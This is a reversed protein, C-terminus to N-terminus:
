DTSADSATVNARRIMRYYRARSCAFDFGALGDLFGLKLIYCHLFAAVDRMPMARFVRKLLERWPVPDQSWASRANMGAEWVAYREHRENWANIDGCADHQMPVDLVDIVDAAYEAKLVPQYHGEIEGMGNLGLDDVLPFEVRRRDFLVLKSNKLGHRLMEGQWIYNARIFFGAACPEEGDFLAAISDKAEATVVEDADVFFVWDHALTLHNLCWQRKKPYMGDWFFSEVRVGSDRAVDCTADDSDSDVVVVEDFSSLAGLCQAIRAEENKTVVIVSVPIKSAARNRLM